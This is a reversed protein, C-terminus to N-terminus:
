AATDGTPLKFHARVKFVRTAPLNMLDTIGTKERISSLIDEIHKRSPAIITFWVNYKNERIYNHTIGPFQNVTEAFRKLHQEDVRAACLTSVFGLRDPSFNGGIRRIIGDKKLRKVRQIIEAEGIKIEPALTDSICTFPRQEMPFDSQILNLIAKDIDDTIPKVPM